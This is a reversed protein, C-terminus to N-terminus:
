KKIITKTSGCTPMKTGLYPNNIKEDLSLWLAGKNNDAMPCFQEYVNQDVGFLKVAKILHASLHIFHDRQVAIDSTKSISTASANIEKSILMWHNHADHDTLLKMNVKSMSALLKGTAKKAANSNDNALADKLTIYGNFVEKLQTQFAKSVEIRTDMKTHDSDDKMNSHDTNKMDMKKVQDESESSDMNKMEEDSMNMNKMDGKDEDGGMNMGPMNAMGGGTGKEGKPNMMSKKSLLQASADIRFVGNTAVTEGEMLGDKIIYFDGLDAGLIVERYMFSHIKDHPVKVYVVARKGTWLVASKPIMIADKVNALKASLIGTAYMEPLLTNSPNNLEVRVKAVRTAASVFPDVYTVKGKFTKGPVAQITFNIVDNIHIWQIDSEYAEFMVWVSSLNAIEFLVSGEKVYDGLEVVRKMVYGSRDSLIDIEEKIKGSAEIANIQTDNLKWLKLKNRTATYLQPYVDKSKIAEFLEKQASILEPSYIRVIKQGFSVKEGTFNVYLREIRGPIHSVQSFLKREDPQVKGLLHIEKTANSKLVPSTQINALQIADESLVIEDETIKEKSDGNDDTLPILEMGCIPCNGPEQMRIQPHMACTWLKTVPDQVYEHEGDKVVTPTESSSFVNGLIIGLILIGVAIIYNKYKKFKEMINM